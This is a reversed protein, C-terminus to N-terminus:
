GPKRAPDPVLSLPIWRLDGGSQVLILINKRNAKRAADVRTSVDAPTKVEQQQVEVILDGPKLGRDAAPSGGDVEIILVGKQDKGIQFKERADATLEALKLGLGTLSRFLM